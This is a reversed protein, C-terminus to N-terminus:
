HRRPKKSVPQAIRTLTEYDEDDEENDSEERWEVVPTETKGAAQRNLYGSRFAFFTMMLEVQPPKVNPWRNVFGRQFEESVPTPIRKSVMRMVSKQKTEEDVSSAKLIREARKYFDIYDKGGQRRMM